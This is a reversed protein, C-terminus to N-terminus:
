DIQISGEFVHKAPGTLYVNTFHTKDKAEFNVELNGGKTCVAVPSLIGQLSAAIASATVGTGCSLTENEVGREYTRVFIQNDNMPEIFNINIGETKFVANNRIAKGKEYVEFSNVKDVQQVLHPSGTDVFTGDDLFRVTQVDSMKLRVDGNSLIEATHAGDYALFETDSQIIGLYHAFAVACRSGNGCLSQSGDPNHFVMEFDYNNSNEILIIGDSGIGFKRDCLKSILENDLAIEKNRNDILIFDNGTAQYKYFKVQTM